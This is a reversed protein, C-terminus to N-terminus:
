KGFMANEMSIHDAILNSVRIRRLEERRIARLKNLYGGMNTRLDINVDGFEELNAKLLPLMQVIHADKSGELGQIFESLKIMDKM